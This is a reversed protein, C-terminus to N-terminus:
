SNFEEKIIRTAPFTNNHCFSGKKTLFKRPVTAVLGHKIWKGTICGGKSRIPSHHPLLMEGYVHKFRARCAAYRCGVLWWSSRNWTLYRDYCGYLVCALCNFCCSITVLIYTVACCCPLYLIFETNPCLWDNSDILHCHCLGWRYIAPVPIMKPADRELMAFIKNTEDFCVDWLHSQTTNLKGDFRSNFKM